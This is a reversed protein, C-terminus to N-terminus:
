TPSSRSSPFSTARLHTTPKSPISSVAFPPPTPATTAARGANISTTSPSSSARPRIPTSAYASRATGPPIASTTARGFFGRTTYLGQLGTTAEAQELPNTIPLSWPRPLFKRKNPYWDGPNYYAEVFTDSLPGIRGIDYLAKIMWYPIRLEDWSEQQLHWSLDLANTRDLLRFNDTEGWVIQQRGLRLSLPIQKFRLDVYFERLDNDFKIDDRNPLDNLRNSLGVDYGYIDQQEFGPTFDYVSDYVGRYLALLNARELFTVPLTGFLVGKDYMNYDFRLKLTNRQQIFAWQDIDPHRFLQQAAVNGTLEFPGYRKFAIAPSASAVFFLLVLSWSRLVTNM